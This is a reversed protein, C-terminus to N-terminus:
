PKYGLERMFELMKQLSEGEQAEVRRVAEEALRAADKAQREAAEARVAADVVGDANQSLKRAEKAALEAKVAAAEARLVAKELRQGLEEIRLVLAWAKEESKVSQDSAKIADKMLKQNAPIFRDCGSIVALLLLTILLKGLFKMSM